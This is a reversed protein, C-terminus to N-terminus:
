DKRQEEEGKVHQDKGRTQVVSGGIVRKEIVPAVNLSGKIYNRTMSCMIGIQIEEAHLIKEGM